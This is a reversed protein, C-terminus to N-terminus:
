SDNVDNTHANYATLKLLCIHAEDQSLDPTTCSEFWGAIFVRKLSPIQALSILSAVIELSFPASLVALTLLSTQAKTSQMHKFCSIEHRPERPM